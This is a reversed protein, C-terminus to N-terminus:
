KNCDYEYKCRKSFKKNLVKKLIDSSEKNTLGNIPGFDNICLYSTNISSIMDVCTKEDIDNTKLYTLTLNSKVYNNELYLVDSYLYQSLNKGSRETTIHYSIDYMEDLTNYVDNNKSKLFVCPCHIHSYGPGNYIVPDEIITKDYTKKIYVYDCASKFSNKIFYYSPMGYKAYNEVFSMCPKGEYMLDNYKIPSMPIMDDNFYIFEEDLGPIKHMCLEITNAQFTPLFQEPIFDKHLVIKVKTQDVYDPVQEINSVILFVNKIFPMYRSIGRLVYRLTGWDYFWNYKSPIFFCYKNYETRWVKECGNVYAIVADM